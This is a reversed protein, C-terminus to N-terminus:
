KEGQKEKIALYCALVLSFIAFLLLNQSNENKIIMLVGSFWFSFIAVVLLIIEVVLREKNM